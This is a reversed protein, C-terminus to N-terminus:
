AYRNFWATMREGTGALCAHSAVPDDMVDTPV